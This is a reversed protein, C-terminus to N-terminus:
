EAEEMREGGWLLEWTSMGLDGDGTGRGVWPCPGDGPQWREERVDRLAAALPDTLERFTADTM